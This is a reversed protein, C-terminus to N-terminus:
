IGHKWEQSYARSIHTTQQYQHAQWCTQQNAKYAQDHWAANRQEQQPSIYTMVQQPQTPPQYSSNAYALTPSYLSTPELPTPQWKFYDTATSYAPQMDTRRFKDPELLYAEQPQHQLEVAQEFKMAYGYDFQPLTDTALSVSKGNDLQLDVREGVIATVTALNGEVIGSAMTGQLFRLRDGVVITRMEHQFTPMAAHRQKTQQKIQRTEWESQAMAYRIRHCADNIRNADHDDKTIVLSSLNTSTSRAKWDALLEAMLDERNQGIATPPVFLDAALSLEVEQEM